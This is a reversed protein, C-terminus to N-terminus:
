GVKWDQSQQTLLTTNAANTKDKSFSGFYLNLTCCKSLIWEDCKKLLLFSRQRNTRCLYIWHRLFVSIVVKCNKSARLTRSSTKLICMILYKNSTTMKLSSCSSLPRVTSARSFTPFILNSNTPSVSNSSTWIKLASVYLPSGVSDSPIIEVAGCQATLFNFYSLYNWCLNLQQKKRQIIHLTILFVPSSLFLLFIFSHM